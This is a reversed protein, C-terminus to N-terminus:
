PEELKSHLYVWSRFVQNKQLSSKERETIWITSGNTFRVLSIISCCDDSYRETPQHPIFYFSYHFVLSVPSMSSISPWFTPNEARQGFWVPGRVFFFFKPCCKTVLYGLFIEALEIEGTSLYIHDFNTVSLCVFEKVGYIPTHPNKRWTLNAMERSAESAAPYVNQIIGTLHFTVGSM